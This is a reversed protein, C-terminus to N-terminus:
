GAANVETSKRGEKEFLMILSPLLMGRVLFVDMLIGLAVIFGFVFLEAIPQTMLVAFTAALILGASTIVNGTRSVAIQVADRLTHKKREEKFRSMLIINYDVGLAVLFVFAYLPIRTSIASYGFLLDVLYIGLGLATAFSLLITGMMYASAKLSRTLAWLLLLILLSELGIVVWSDKFIIDRTDVQKATEGAFYLEGELGATSLLEREQGRLRELADLSSAAYPSDEFSLTIKVVKGDEATGSVAATKVLDQGGFADALASLKEESVPRDAVFLVSTPALDGKPFYQELKEYGERSPMDKPFSAISDYQFKMNFTNLGLLVLVALLIAAVAGPKTSVLRGAKNWMSAPNAAEEGAKPINPWFSKRGFLQFLAPILTVSALMIVAMATSFVPAFGRFDKFAAAFLVLMAALVTGGSFFVPEGTERMAHKMAEYKSDYHRLEERYRAFVFLSYDTVSAFLLITMISLSQADFQLGASGMLGLTKDVAEYVFACALLPIFVLLPSRYIVILLVFILGVTSLLLVVDARSFLAVADSSIGAPGTIRVFSAESRDSAITQLEKLTAQIEKTELGEELLAPIVATSGDGSFFRERAPPPLRDFPVIGKLHELGEDQIATTMEAIRGADLKKGEESIVILAPLGQDTSGFYTDLERQAIVSKATDPLGQGTANSEYDKAGPALGGLLLTVLLWATLVTWMGKRTSAFDTIRHLLAKM